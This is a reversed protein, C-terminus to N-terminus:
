LVFDAPQIGYSSPHLTRVINRLYSGTKPNRDALNALKGKKFGKQGDPLLLVILPRAIDSGEPFKIVLGKEGTDLLLLTGVPYVGLMNVFVKLLIPDFDRGTGELMLGLALDPSYAEPRYSRPSTLADFVDAIMLIRGFLSISRKRHIRPYGSLDYKMHHEFPPLLVKAKLDRTARLKIIKSVSRLPHKKIEKFEEPTLKGPKNLIGLPIDLKGLDHVLGCIGLMSMSVRSLGIRKGLCMSLIAVNVSHTYTYDDYDRITSLGLLFSEDESLLDVMNQVIRKLKRVGAGSQSTIKQSIEKVSTLAYAYTRRAMEKREPDREQSVEDPIDVIEVWQFSGAKLKKILWAVPDEEIEARNLLRGFRLIQDFPSFKLSSKFRLGGLKRQEFYNLMEKIINLNERRFLLKEEQLFFRGRSIQITVYDEDEWWQTLAGVFEEACEILVQNNDQYVKVAQTLKYFARLFGEGLVTRQIQYDQSLPQYEGKM